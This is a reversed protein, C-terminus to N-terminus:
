YLDSSILQTFQQRRRIQYYEVASWGTIQPIIFEDLGYHYNLIHDIGHEECLESGVVASKPCWKRSCKTYNEKFRKKPRYPINDLTTQKM